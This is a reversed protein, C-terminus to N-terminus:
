AMNVGWVTAAARHPRGMDKLKRERRGQAILVNTSYEERHSLRRRLAQQARGPISKRTKAATPCCRSASRSLWCSPSRAMIWFTLDARSRRWRRRPSNRGDAPATMTGLVWGSWLWGCFYANQRVFGNPDRLKEAGTRTRGHGDTDVRIWGRGDRDHPRTAARLFSMAKWAHDHREVEAQVQAVIADTFGVAGAPGLRWHGLKRMGGSVRYEIPVPAVM